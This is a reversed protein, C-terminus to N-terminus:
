IEDRNDTKTQAAENARAHDTRHYPDFLRPQSAVPGAFSPHQGARRSSLAGLKSSVSLVGSAHQDHAVTKGSAPPPGASGRPM